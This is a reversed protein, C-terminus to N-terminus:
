ATAGAWDGPEAPPSATQDTTHAWTQEGTPGEYVDLLNGGRQVVGESVGDGDLDGASPGAHNGITDDNWKLRPRCLTPVGDGWIDIESLGPYLRTGVETIIVEVTRAGSIPADGNLAVLDFSTDGDKNDGPTPDSDTELDAATFM